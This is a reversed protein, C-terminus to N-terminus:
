VVPYRDNKKSQLIRGHISKVPFIPIRNHFSFRDDIKGSRNKIPITIAIAIEFDSISKFIYIASRNQDPIRQDIKLDFDPDSKM